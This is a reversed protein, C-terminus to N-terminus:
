RKKKSPKRKAKTPKAKKAVKGEVRALYKKWPTRFEEDTTKGLQWNVADVIGKVYDSTPPKKDAMASIEELVAKSPPKPMKKGDSFLEAQPGKVIKEKNHGNTVHKSKEARDAREKREKVAARAEGANGARKAAVVEAAGDEQETMDKLSALEKFQEDTISGKKWQLMLVPSATGLAKLMKSVWTSSMGIADAVDEMTRNRKRLTEAAMVLEYSSLEKRQVQAALMDLLIKDAEDITLEIAEETRDVVKVLFDSKIKGRKVLRELALERRQGDTVVDVPEGNVLVRQVTLPDQLGRELIDDALADLDKDTLGSQTRPNHWAGHEIRLAHLPVERSTLQLQEM